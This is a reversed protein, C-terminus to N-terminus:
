LFSLFSSISWSNWFGFKCHLLARDDTSRKIRREIGSPNPGRELLNIIVSNNCRVLKNKVVVKDVYGSPLKHERMFSELEYLNINYKKAAVKRLASTGLPVKIDLRPLEKEGQPIRDFIGYVQAIRNRRAQMKRVFAKQLFDPWNTHSFVEELDSQKVTVLKKAMWLSDAFTSKTWAEPRYLLFDNFIINGFYINLFKSDSLGNVEGTKGIGGMSSGLDHQYEVYSKAKKGNSPTFLIANRSNDDKADINYIWINLVVLGRGVRDHNSGTSSGAVPGGSLVLDKNKFEVMSEHFTVYTRGLLGEVEYKQKRNKALNTLITQDLIGENYNDIDRQTIVGRRLTYPDIDFKYKSTLLCSKLTNYSAINSRCDEDKSPDGLILLTGAKGPKNAYVLDAYKAGLKMYLRNNVPEIQIENGWKLKWKNGFADKTNVKPSTATTKIKDFFLVKKSKELSFEAAALDGLKEKLIERVGSETWRELDEWPNSNMVRDKETNWAPHNRSIDLDSVEDYSLKAMEERTMFLDPLNPNELFIAEKEAQLLGIPEHRSAPSVYPLITDFRRLVKVGTDLVKDFVLEIAEEVKTKNGVKYDNALMSYVMRKALYYARIKHTLNSSEGENKELAKMARKYFAVKVKNNSYLEKEDPSMLDKYQKAHEIEENLRDIDDKLFYMLNNYSEETMTTGIRHKAFFSDSGPFAIENFAYVNTSMIIFASMVCLGFVSRM